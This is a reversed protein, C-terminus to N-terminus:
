PRRSPRSRSRSGPTREWQTKRSSRLSASFNVGAVTQADRTDTRHGFGIILDLDDDDATARGSHLKGRLEVIGGAGKAVVAEFSEVLASEPHGQDFGARANQGGKRLLEGGGGVLLELAQAHGDKDVGSHDLDFHM